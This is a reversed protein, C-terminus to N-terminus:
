GRRIEYVVLSEYFLSERAIERVSLGLGSCYSLFGALDGHDSLLLVIRGAAKLVRLADDLFRM